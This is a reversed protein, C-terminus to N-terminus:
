EASEAAVLLPELSEAAFGAAQRLDARATADDRLRLLATRAEALAAWDAERADLEQAELATAIRYASIAAAPALTPDRGAALAALPGLATEPARLFRAARIARLRLAEPTESAALAELIATDGARRALRALELPDLDGAPDELSGPTQARGADPAALLLAALAALVLATPRVYM